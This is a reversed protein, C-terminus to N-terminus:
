IGPTIITSTVEPIYMIIGGEMWISRAASKWTTSPDSKKKGTEKM